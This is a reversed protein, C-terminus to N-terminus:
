RTEPREGFERLHGRSINGLGIVGIGIVDNAGRIRSYSAASAALATYRLM